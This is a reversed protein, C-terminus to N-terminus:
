TNYYEIECSNSYFREVDVTTSFLHTYFNDGINHFRGYKRQNLLIRACKEHIGVSCASTIEFHLSSGSKRVIDRSKSIDM